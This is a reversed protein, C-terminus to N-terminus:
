RQGDVSIVIDDNVAAPAAVDNRYTELVNELRRGDNSEITETSPTTLTSPDYTQADVMQRVSKGFNRETLTPETTCAALVAIVPFGVLVGITQYTKM